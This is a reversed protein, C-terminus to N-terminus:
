FHYQLALSYIRVNFKGFDGGGLAAYTDWWLEASWHSTFKWGLGAGFDSAFNDKTEHAENTPFTSSVQVENLNTHSAFVGARGLLGFEDSLPWRGTVAMTEESAKVNRDDTLDYSVTSDHFHMNQSYRGIDLFGAQVGVYSNFWYGGEVKSSTTSSTTSIAITFQPNNSTTLGATSFSGDFPIASANARGMELGIYWGADDAAAISPALLAAALIGLRFSMRM